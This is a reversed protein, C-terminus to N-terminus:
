NQFTASLIKDAAPNAADAKSCGLRENSMPPLTVTKEDVQHNKRDVMSLRFSITRGPNANALYLYAPTKNQCITRDPLTQTLFRGFSAPEEAPEAQGAEVYAASDLTIAMPVRMYADGGVDTRYMTACGVMRREGPALVLKRHLPFKEAVPGKDGDLINFGLGSPNSDYKLDVSVSRTKSANTAYFRSRIGPNFTPVGDCAESSLRVSVLSAAAPPAKAPKAAKKAKAAAADAPGAIALGAAAVCSTFVIWKM